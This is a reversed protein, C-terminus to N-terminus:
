WDIPAVGSRRLFANTKAFHGCGIFPEPERRASLPSPHNARLILRPAGDRSAGPTPGRDQAHKGWLLFVIPVPRQNIAEIIQGTLVEWGWNAHTNPHGREVTLCTNLLLVGQRAWPTLDAGSSKDSGNPAAGPLSELERSNRERAIELRINRLSPPAAVGPSVSFALGNAQGAGHYPDQGVIVVKVSRLPTLELARLPHPPFITASDMVRDRMRAALKRGAAGALFADVLGRWDQAVPWTDPDWAPLPRALWDQQAEGPNNCAMRYRTPRHGATLFLAQGCFAHM